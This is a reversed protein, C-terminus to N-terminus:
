LSACWSPSSCCGGVILYHRRVVDADDAVELDDRALRRAGDKVDGPEPRPRVLDSHGLCTLM